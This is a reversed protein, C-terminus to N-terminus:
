IKAAVVRVQTSTTNMHGWIFCLTDFLSHGLLTAFAMYVRPFRHLGPLWKHRYPKCEKIVFGAEAFLNGLCMPSWSFLHHNIDNPFYKSRISECPVVFVCFGGQKVKRFLEKLCLLPDLTHELANNSIVLDISSNKVKSLSSFVKLSLKRANALAHENVEVGYREFAPLAALLWGGGCGFELVTNTKDAWPLFKSQNAWGGFEGILSHWDFYSKNYHKSSSM